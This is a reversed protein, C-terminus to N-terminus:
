SDEDDNRIDKRSIDMKSLSIPSKSLRDVLKNHTDNAHRRELLPELQDSYKEIMQQKHMDEERQLKRVEMKVKKRNIEWNSIKEIIQILVWIATLSPLIVELLLPSEKVIRAARARHHNKLPRGTRYWFFRNFDYKSYEEEALIVSFDYALEFDYILSSVDLLFPEEDERFQLTVLYEEM